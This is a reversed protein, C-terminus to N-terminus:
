TLFAHVSMIIRELPYFASVATLSANLVINRGQVSILLHDAFFESRVYLNEKPSKKILLCIVHCVDVGHGM